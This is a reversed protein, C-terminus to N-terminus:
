GQTVSTLPKTPLKKEKPHEIQHLVYSLHAGVFIILASYYVWALLVVLSGAAGYSSSLASHGLYLGILEKGIIFLFSTLIGGQVSRKWPLRKEPLFHFLISFLFIYIGASTLINVVVGFSNPAYKITTSIVTSAVLSVIVIFLFGLVLGMQLFRARLFCWTAQKFSLDESPAEKEFITNLAARLEGFILSASLLLTAISILGSFSMLDPRSKANQLILVITSAAESGM